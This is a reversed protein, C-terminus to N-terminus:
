TAATPARVQFREPGQVARRLLGLDQRDAGIPLGDRRHAGDAGSAGCPQHCRRGGLEQALRYQARAPLHAARRRRDWANSLANIIQERAAWCKANGGRDLGGQVLLVHDLGVRNFSNELALVGQIEHAQIM